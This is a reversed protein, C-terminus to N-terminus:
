IKTQGFNRSEWIKGNLDTYLLSQGGNSDEWTNGERDIIEASSRSNKLDLRDRSGNKTGYKLKKLVINESIIIL